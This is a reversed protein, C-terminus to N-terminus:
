TIRYFPEIFRIYYSIRNFTKYKNFLAGGHSSLFFDVNFVNNHWLKNGVDKISRLNNHINKKLWYIIRLDLLSYKWQMIRPLNRVNDEIMREVYLFFFCNLSILEIFLFYSEKERGKGLNKRRKEISRSATTVVFNDSHTWCNKQRRGILTDQM